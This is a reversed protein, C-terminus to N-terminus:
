KEKEEGFAEGCFPCADLDSEVRANCNSCFTFTAIDPSEEFFGKILNHAEEIKDSPVLIKIESSEGAMPLMATGLENSLLCYIGEEELAEKIMEAIAPSKTTYADRFKEHVKDPDPLKDVLKVGCDACTMVGEKYESGCIPCFPMM